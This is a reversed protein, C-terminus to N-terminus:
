YTINWFFHLSILVSCKKKQMLHFIMSWSEKVRAMRKWILAAKFNFCQASTEGDWHDSQVPLASQPPGRNLPSCRGSPPFRPGRSHAAQSRDGCSHSKLLWTLTLLCVQQFAHQSHLRTKDVWMPLNLDCRGFWICKSSRRTIQPCYTSKKLKFKFNFTWGAVNGGNMLPATYLIVAMIGCYLTVGYYYYNFLFRSLSPIFKM